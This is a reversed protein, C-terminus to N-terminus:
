NSELEAKLERVFQEANKKIIKFAHKYKGVIDPGSALLGSFVSRTTFFESVKTHFEKIKTSDNYLTYDVDAVIDYSAERHKHNDERTVEVGTQDFYANLNKIVIAKTASHKRILDFYVSDNSPSIILEPIVIREAPIKTDMEDYLMQKLSDALEAFLLEKNKRANMSGANFSNIILIKGTAPKQYVRNVPYLFTPLFCVALIISIMKM